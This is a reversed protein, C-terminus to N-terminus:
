IFSCLNSIYYKTLTMNAISYARESAAETAQVSFVILPLHAIEQLKM